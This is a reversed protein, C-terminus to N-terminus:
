TGRSGCIEVDSGSRIAGLIPIQTAWADRASTLTAGRVALAPM